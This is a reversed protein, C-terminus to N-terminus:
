KGIGTEKQSVSEIIAFFAEASAGAQLVGDAGAARARHEQESTHALVVCPLTLRHAKIQQVAHAAGDGPMDADLLVLTPFLEATMRLGAPLDDAQVVHAVRNSARLLVRLSDRLRGAPAIILVSTADAM